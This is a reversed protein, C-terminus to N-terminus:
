LANEANACRSGPIAIQCYQEACLTDLLRILTDPLRILMPRSRKREEAEDHDRLFCWCVDHQTAMTGVRLSFRTSQLGFRVSLSDAKQDSFRLGAPEGSPSRTPQTWM